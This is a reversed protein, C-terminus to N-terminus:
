WVTLKLSEDVDKANPWKPYWRIAHGRKKSVAKNQILSEGPCHRSLGMMDEFKAIVGVNTRQESGAFM